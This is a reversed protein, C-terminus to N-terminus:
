YRHKLRQRKRDRKAARCARPDALRGFLGTRCAYRYPLRYRRTRHRSPEIVIRGQFRAPAGDRPFAPIRPVFAETEIGLRERATTPGSHTGSASFSPSAMVGVLVVIWGVRM